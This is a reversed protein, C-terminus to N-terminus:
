RYLSKIKGWSSSQVSVPDFIYFIDAIWFLEANCIGDNFEQGPCLPTYDNGYYFSRTPRNAPFCTGCAIPGTPGNAPHDTGFAAPSAIQLDEATTIVIAFKSPCSVGGWYIVSFPFVLYAPLYPHSAIPAGVPCNNADVAHVAITGTFGYNAPAGTCLFHASQLLEFSEGPPACSNFVQGIKGGPGFGSWCWVWGTCINFYQVQCYGGMRWTDGGLENIAVSRKELAFSTSAGFLAALFVISFIPKRETSHSRGPVCLQLASM